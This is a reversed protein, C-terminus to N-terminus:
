NVPSYKPNKESLLLKIHGMMSDVKADDLGDYMGRIRGYNDVLVYHNDHIFDKDISIGATDDTASILYSYRAMDYLEQKGGTLFMWQVADANFKMSYAKLAAVTDKLPDVTHSLLMVDSNGKFKAYVKALNENMKPCIGKCTAFFYEVVVIKDKVDDNTIVKGDQNVFSFPAVHHDPVNGLIPLVSKKPQENSVKYYYGLFAIGFLIFFSVLFAITKNNKM